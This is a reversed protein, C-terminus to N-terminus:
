LSVLLDEGDEGHGAIRALVVGGGDSEELAAVGSEEAVLNEVVVIRVLHVVEPSRFDPVGDVLVVGNGAHALQLGDHGEADDLLGLGRLDAVAGDVVDGSVLVPGDGELVVFGRGNLLSLQSPKYCEVGTLP